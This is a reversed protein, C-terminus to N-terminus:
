IDHPIELMAKSTTLTPLVIDAVASIRCVGNLKDWTAQSLFYPTNKSKDFSNSLTRWSIKNSPENM